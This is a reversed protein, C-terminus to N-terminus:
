KKHVVANYNVGVKPTGDKKLLLFNTKLEVLYVHEDDTLVYDIKAGRIDSTKDDGLSMEKTLFRLNGHIQDVLHGALIDKVYPTLLTDLIVEAKINHTFYDKVAWECIIEELTEKPM